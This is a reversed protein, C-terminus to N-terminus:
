NILDTKEESVHSDSSFVSSDSKLDSNLDFLFSDEDNSIASPSVQSPNRNPISFPLLSPHKVKVVKFNNLRATLYEPSLLDVQKSKVGNQIKIGKKSEIIQKSDSNGINNNNNNSYNNIVNRNNNNIYDSNNNINKNDIRNDNFSNNGETYTLNVVKPFILSASPPLVSRAIVESSIGSQNFNVTNLRESSVYPNDSFSSSLLPPTSFSPISTSEQRVDSYIANGILSHIRSQPDSIAYHNKLIMSGKAFHSIDNIDEM